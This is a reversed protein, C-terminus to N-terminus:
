PALRETIETLAARQATNLSATTLAGFLDADGDLDLSTEGAFEAVIPALAACFADAFATVEAAPADPGLADFGAVMATVTPLLDPASIRAYVRALGPMAADGALHALLISQDRDFRAMARSPYIGEFLALADALEPPSDLPAGSARVRALLARQRTLRDIQAALEADLDDLRAAGQADPDDLLPGMRELPIGLSALRRIRLVRIVADAGYRRYGNHSRPPEPLVGVQHYHRLARVTVGTLRALESSRM